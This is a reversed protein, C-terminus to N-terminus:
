HDVAFVEAALKRGLNVADQLGADFGAEGALFVRKVRHEDAGVFRALKFLDIVASQEGDCAVLYRACLQYDGNPDRVELRLSDQQQELGILSHGWRLSAGLEIAREELLEEVRAQQVIVPKPQDRILIPAGQPTHGVAVLAPSLSRARDNLGELLGRYGLMDIARGGLSLARSPGSPEALRELVTVSVGALRLECALMLGIPGGGAIVVDRMM